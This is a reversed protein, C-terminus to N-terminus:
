KFRVQLNLKMFYLKGEQYINGFLHRSTSPTEFKTNHFLYNELDNRDFFHYCVIDGDEKVIIYGGNANFNGYWPTTCTM